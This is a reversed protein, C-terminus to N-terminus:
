RTPRGANYKTEKYKTTACNKSFILRDRVDVHHIDQLIQRLVLLRILLQGHQGLTPLFLDIGGLLFRADDRGVVLRLLDEEALGHTRLAFLLDHFFFLLYQFELALVKTLFAFQVLFAFREDFRNLILHIVGNLVDGVLFTDNHDFVARGIRGEDVHGGFQIYGVLHELFETRFLEYYRLLSM